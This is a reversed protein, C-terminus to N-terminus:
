RPRTARPRVGGPIREDQVEVGGRPTWSVDRAHRLGDTIARRSSIRQRLATDDTLCWAGRAPRCPRRTGHFSLSASTAGFSARRADAAHRRGLRRRRTRSSVRRRIASACRWCSPRDASGATSTSPSWRGPASTITRALAEIGLCVLHVPDVDSSSRADGRRVLDAPATAIWTSEPCSSRTARASGSRRRPELHIRPLQRSPLAIAHARESCCCLQRFQPRRRLWTRVLKTPRGPGRRRGRTRHGLARSSPDAVLGIGLCDQHGNALLRM